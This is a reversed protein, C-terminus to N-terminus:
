LLGVLLDSRVPLTPMPQVRLRSKRRHELRPRPEVYPLAPEDSNSKECVLRLHLRALIALMDPGHNLVSDLNWLEFHDGKGVALARSREGPREQLWRAISVRGRNDVRTAAAYGFARRLSDEHDDHDNAPVVSDDTLRRHQDAATSQDFVILCPATPHLAVYLRHSQRVRVVLHFASPLCIDGRASINCISSGIFLADM